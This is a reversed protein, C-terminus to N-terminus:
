KNKGPANGSNGPPPTPSAQQNPCNKKPKKGYKVKAKECGPPQPHGPKHAVPTFSAGGLTAGGVGLLGATMVAVAIKVKVKSKLTSM